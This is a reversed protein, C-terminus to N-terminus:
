SRRTQSYSSLSKKRDVDDIHMRVIKLQEKSRIRIEFAEDSKKGQKVMLLHRPLRDSQTPSVLEDILFDAFDPLKKEQYILVM